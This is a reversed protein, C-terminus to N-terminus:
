WREHEIWKYGCDICIDNKRIPGNANDSETKFVPSASKVIPCKVDDDYIVYKYYTNAYHYEYQFNYGYNKDVERVVDKSANYVEVTVSRSVFPEHECSSLLITLIVIVFGTILSLKYIKM